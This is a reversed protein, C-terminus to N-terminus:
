SSDIFSYVEFSHFGFRFIDVQLRNSKSDSPDQSVIYLWLSGPCQEPSEWMSAYQKLFPHHWRAIVDSAEHRALHISSEPSSGLIENWIRFKCVTNIYIYIYINTHIYTYIYIYIYRWTAPALQRTMRLQHYVRFCGAGEESAHPLVRVEM